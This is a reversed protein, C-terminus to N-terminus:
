KAGFNQTWYVVGEKEYQAMGIENYKTDMINACHGPSKMWSSLVEDVTKQGKAINEGLRKWKTYGNNESRETFTSRKGHNLVEATWDSSTGSGEHSFTNSEALDESHEYAAKYLAENWRLPSVAPKIGKTGCNQEKSRKFNIAEIYAQQSNTEITPADSAHPVQTIPASSSGGGCGMLMLVMATYFALKNM